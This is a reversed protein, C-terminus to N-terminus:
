VNQVGKRSHKGTVIYNTAQQEIEQQTKVRHQLLWSTLESKDFYILKATKYHPIQKQCVLKYLHSKSLNTIISADSMTLAQKASLLTLNRLEKLESLIKEEM